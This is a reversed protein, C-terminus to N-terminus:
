VEIYSYDPNQSLKKEIEDFTLFGETAGFTSVVSASMVSAYMLSKGINLNTKEMTACFTSAFADGAGLTSVM